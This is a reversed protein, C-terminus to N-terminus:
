KSFNTSSSLDYKSSDLGGNPQFSLKVTVQEFYHVFLLQNSKLPFTKLLLTFTLCAVGRGQNYFNMITLVERKDITKSKEDSSKKKFYKYFKYGKM